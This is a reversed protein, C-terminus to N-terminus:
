NLDPRLDQNPDASLDPDPDPNLDPNPDTNGDGGDGEDEATVIDFAYSGSEGVWDGDDARRQVLAADAVVRGPGAHEGFALRLPVTVTEGPRVSFGATDRGIVGINEDRDTHEIGVPRWRPGDRYELRIGDPRLSRSDDVLVLVPHLAACRAATRNTLRLSWTR